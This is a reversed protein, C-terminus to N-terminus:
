IGYCIIFCLCRSNLIAGRCETYCCHAHRWETLMVYSIWIVTPVVANLMVASLAIVRLMFFRLMIDSLMVPGLM